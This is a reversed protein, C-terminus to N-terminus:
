YAYVAKSKKNRLLYIDPYDEDNLLHMFQMTDFSPLTHTHLSFLKPIDLIKIGYEYRTVLVDLQKTLHVTLRNLSNEDLSSPLYIAPGLRKGFLNIAIFLASIPFSRVTEPTLSNLLNNKTMQLLQKEMAVPIKLKYIQNLWDVEVYDTLEYYSVLNSFYSSKEPFFPAQLEHMKYDYTVNSLLSAYFLINIGQQQNQNLESM